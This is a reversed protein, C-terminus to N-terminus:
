GRLKEAVSIILKRAYEGRVVGEPRANALWYGPSNIIGKDALVEVASILPDEQMLADEVRDRFAIWRIDGGKTSKEVLPAPCLKGTMDYHRYDAIEVGPMYEAVFEVANQLVKEWAGMNNMCLEINWTYNNNQNNFVEKALRTQGNYGNNGPLPRDGCGWVVEDLPATITASDADIYVHAGGYVFPTAGDAEFFDYKGKAGNWKQVYARGMYKRHNEDGAGPNLNGTGHWVRAKVGLLKSGPRNPHGLPIFDRVVNVSM